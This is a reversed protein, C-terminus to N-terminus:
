ILTKRVAIREDLARGLREYGRANFFRAPAGAGDLWSLTVSRLGREHAEDEIIGLVSSGIGRRQHLRDVLLTHVFADPHPADAEALLAVGVIEGDAVIARMTLPREASPMLAERFLEGVPPAFREQSKHSRLMGVARAIEPTLPVLDVRAPRHRPRDRWREWDERTAGYLMDDSREEGVWFSQITHGEFLLGCAELVRASAINLPDLSSEIRVIGIDDFLHNVLAWSAETAYGHGWHDPHFSYGFFGVRGDWRLQVALDGLILDPTAADVVTANWTDHNQPWEAAREISRATSLEARERTYPMEWDQYRAVEPNSRREFTADVDAPEPARIILRETRIAEFAM